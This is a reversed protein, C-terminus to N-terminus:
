ATEDGVETPQTALRGLQFRQYGWAAMGMVVARLTTCVMSDPVEVDITCTPAVGMMPM